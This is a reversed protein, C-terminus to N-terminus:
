GGALAKAMAPAVADADKVVIAGASALWKMKAEASGGGLTSPIWGMVAATAILCFLIVAIAAAILVPHARSPASPPIAPQM